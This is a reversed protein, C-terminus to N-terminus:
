RVAPSPAGEWRRSAARRGTSSAQGIESVLTRETSVRHFEGKLDYPAEGTWVALMQDITALFSAIATSACPGWLRPTAPSDVWEESCEYRLRDLRWGRPSSSGLPLLAVLAGGSHSM